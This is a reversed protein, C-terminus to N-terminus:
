TSQKVPAAKASRSKEKARRRAHRKRDAERRQEPSERLVVRALLAITSPTSDFEALTRVWDPIELEGTIHCSCIDGPNDKALVAGCQKCTPGTPVEKREIPRTRWDSFGNMDRSYRDSM